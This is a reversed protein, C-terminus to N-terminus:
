IIRQHEPIHPIHICFLEMNTLQQWKYIYIPIYIIHLSCSEFNPMFLHSAFLVRLRKLLFLSWRIQIWSSYLILFTFHPTKERGSVCLLSFFHSRRRCWYINGESYTFHWTCLRWLPESAFWYTAKSQSLISCTIMIVIQTWNFIYGPICNWIRDICM